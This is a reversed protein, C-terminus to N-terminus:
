DDGPASSAPAGLSGWDKRRTAVMVVALLVFVMISGLLLANDESKLLGYLTAYLGAFFLFFIATRRVTGLPHRLYYTLLAVCAAAAIAYSFVFPIHESLAILLLFFIAVACGVLAYQVPHMQVGVSAEALALAGYTFLVFLFAYETARHSLAYINVPDFLSVGVSRAVTVNNTAVAPGWTAQGGTAISTTRWTATYGAPGVAQEDPSAAGM